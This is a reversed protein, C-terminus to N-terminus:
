KQHLPLIFPLLQELVEGQPPWIEYFEVLQVGFDYGLVGEFVAVSYPAKARILELKHNFLLINSLKLNAITDHKKKM